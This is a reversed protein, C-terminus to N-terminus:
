QNEKRARLAAACLALAHGSCESAGAITTEHGALTCAIGYAKEEFFIGVVGDPVLTMAADQSATYSPTENEDHWQVTSHEVNNGLSEHILADVERCEGDLAEIRDALDTNTM